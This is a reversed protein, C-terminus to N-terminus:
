YVTYPILEKIFLKIKVTSRYSGSGIGVSPADWVLVEGTIERPKNYVRKRAHDRIAQKVSEQFSLRKGEIGKLLTGNGVGVSTPIANSSWSTRRILQYNAMNYGVKAWVRGSRKESDIIKLGPDGWAIEAIPRLEFRDEVSRSRDSPTYSFSYGYIMASIYLRAEELIQKAVTEKSLPYQTEETVVPELECWVYLTLREASTSSHVSLFFLGSFFLILCRM